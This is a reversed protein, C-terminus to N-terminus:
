IKSAYVLKFRFTSGCHAYLSAAEQEGGPQKVWLKVWFLFFATTVVSSFPRSLIQSRQSSSRFTNFLKFGCKPACSM